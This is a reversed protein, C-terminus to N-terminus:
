FDGLDRAFVLITNAPVTIGSSNAMADWSPGDAMVGGSNGQANPNYFNDFIDSNFVEHWQGGGPFGLRYSHNYFTRENLSAVVVVDRGV